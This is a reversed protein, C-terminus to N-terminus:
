VRSTRSKNWLLKHIIYVAFLCLFSVIKSYTIEQWRTITKKKALKPCILWRNHCLCLLIYSINHQRTRSEKNSEEAVDRRM